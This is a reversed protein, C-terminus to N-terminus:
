CIHPHFIFSSVVQDHLLSSLIPLWHDIAFCPSHTTLFPWPRSVQSISTRALKTSQKEMVFVCKRAKFNSSIETLTSFHSRLDPPPHHLTCHQAALRSMDTSLCGYLEMCWAPQYLQLPLFSAYEHHCNLCVHMTVIWGASGHVTVCPVVSNLEEDLFVKLGYSVLSRM